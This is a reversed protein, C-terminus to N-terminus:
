LPRVKRTMHDVHVWKGGNQQKELREVPKTVGKGDCTGEFEKQYALDRVLWHEDKHVLVSFGKDMSVRYPAVPVGFPWQRQPLHDKAAKEMSVEVESVTGAAWVTGQPDPVSEEILCAVREGVSFRRPVPKHQLPLCMLTFALGEEASQGFCVEAMITDNTDNPASILRSLPENLFVVYPLKVWAQQADPENVAQVHGSMWTPGLNCVTHSGKQFRLEQAGKLAYQELIPKVLKSVLTKIFDADVETLEAADIAVFLDDLIQDIDANALDQQSDFEQVWYM